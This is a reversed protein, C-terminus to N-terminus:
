RDSMVKQFHSGGFAIIVFNETQSAVGGLLFDLASIALEGNLKMWVFIRIVRMGLFFKLLKAFSIINEDVRIFARGVITEAVSGEGRSARTEAATTKM